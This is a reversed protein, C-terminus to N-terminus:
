SFKAISVEELIRYSVIIVKYKKRDDSLYVSVRSDNSIPIQGLDLYYIKM